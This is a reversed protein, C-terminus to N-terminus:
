RERGIIWNQDSRLYSESCLLAVIEDKCDSQELKYQYTQM